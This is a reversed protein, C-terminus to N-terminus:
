ERRRNASHAALATAVNPPVFRDVAGGLAAIQRVLTSSVHATDRAPILLITEVESALDRNMRAMPVEYDFDVAGRVGRVIVGCGHERAADVVLGQAAVVEIHDLSACAERVLELREDTTFMHQKDPNVAVAVTVRGFLARARRVLDHHGLTFPDFTGPFLAHTVPASGSMPVTYAPVRPPVFDVPGQVRVLPDRPPGAPTSEPVVCPFLGCRGNIAARPATASPNTPRRRISSEATSGPAGPFSKTIARPSPAIPAIADAPARGPRPADIASPNSASNAKAVVWAEPGRADRPAHRAEPPRDSHIPRM